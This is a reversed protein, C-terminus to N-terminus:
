NRACAKNAINLKFYVQQQQKQSRLPFIFSVSIKLMIVRYIKGKKLGKKKM